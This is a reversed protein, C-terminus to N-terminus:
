YISYLIPTISLRQINLLIYLKFM